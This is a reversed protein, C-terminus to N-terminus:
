RATRVDLAADMAAILEARQAERVKAAVFSVNRPDTDAAEFAEIAHRYTLERRLAALMSRAASENVRIVVTGNRQKTVLKVIAV